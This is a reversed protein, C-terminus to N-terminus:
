SQSFNYAHCLEKHRITMKGSALLGIGRLDIIEPLVLARFNMCDTEREAQPM